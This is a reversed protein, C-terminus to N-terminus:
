SQKPPCLHSLDGFSSDRSTEYTIIFLLTPGTVVQYAWHRLGLMLLLTSVKLSRRAEDGGMLDIEDMPATFEHIDSDPAEWSPGHGLSGPASQNKNQSDHPICPIKSSSPISSHM